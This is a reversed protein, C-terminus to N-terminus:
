EVRPVLSGDFGDVGARELEELRRETDAPLREVDGNIRGGMVVKLPSGTPLAAAAVRSSAGRRPSARVRSPWSWRTPGFRLAAWILATFVM